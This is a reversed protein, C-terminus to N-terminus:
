GKCPCYTMKDITNAFKHYGSGSCTSAVLNPSIVNDLTKNYEEFYRKANTNPTNKAANYANVLSSGAEQCHKDDKSKLEKAWALTADNLEDIQKNLKPCTESKKDTALKNLKNSLDRPTLVSKTTGQFIAKGGIIFLVLLVVIIFGIITGVITLASSEM